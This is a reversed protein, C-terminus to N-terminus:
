DLVFRAQERAPFRDAAPAWEYGTVRFGCKELVRISAANSRAARAHLPRITVEALLLRLARTAIGKGWHERAIWYGVADRGDQKFCSISGVLREGELIARAIVTSDKFIRAWALRFAAEDRPSSVAVRNAEPDLEHEFLAPLDREEV